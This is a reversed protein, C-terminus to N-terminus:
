NIKRFVSERSKTHAGILKDPFHAKGSRHLPVLNAYNGLAFCGFQRSHRPVFKKIRQVM